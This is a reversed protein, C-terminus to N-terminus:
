STSTRWCRGGTRRREPQVRLPDHVGGDPAHARRADQPRRRRQRPRLADLGARVDRLLRRVGPRRLAEAGPRLHGARVRHRARRRDGAHIREARLHRLQPRLPDEQRDPCRGEPRGDLLLRRARRDWMRDLLFDVGHRAFEACLGGGYGARHASSMTFVSRTQAILSKQDEGTDRGHQDFHTIFGGNVDDKCRTLWFPLLEHTLHRHAEDKAALITDRTM